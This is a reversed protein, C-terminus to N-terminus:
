NNRQNKRANTVYDFIIKNFMEKNSPFFNTFVPIFYVPLGKLIDMQDHSEIRMADKETTIILKNQTAINNFSERVKILDDKSYQHHDPFKMVVTEVKNELLYDILPESNAIGSFLLVATNQDMPKIETPDSIRTFPGYDIFSFFVSQHLAPHIKECLNKREQLSIKVPCKTVIIIDARGAGCRFERLTGSPVVDDNFYLKNYDTLLISLGPKISRHQFADDLLICDMDKNIKLIELVGKCREECVTVHVEPFKTKYQRPEDGIESSLSTLSAEVFGRSKRKYGRSLTAVQFTGSLLRILYEVQPTKGTGGFSLNGVSIIPVEFSWVKFINKNFMFNRVATIVGYLLSFPYLVVSIINM